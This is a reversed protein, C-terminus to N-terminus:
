TQIVKKYQTYLQEFSSSYAAASKDTWVHNQQPKKKAITTALLAQNKQQM